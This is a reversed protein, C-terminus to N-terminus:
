PLRSQQMHKMTYAQIFFGIGTATHDSAYAQPREITPIAHKFRGSPMSILRNHENHTTYTAVEAVLRDSM